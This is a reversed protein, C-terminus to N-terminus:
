VHARGIQVVDVQRIHHALTQLEDGYKGQQRDIAVLGAIILLSVAEIDVSWIGPKGRRLGDEVQEAGVGLVTRPLGLHQVGAKGEVGLVAAAVIGGKGSM